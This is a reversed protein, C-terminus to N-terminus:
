AMSSLRGSRRRTGDEKEEMTKEAVDEKKAVDEAKHNQKTVKAKAQTTTKAPAKPKTKLDKATTATTTTTSKRTRKAKPTPLDEDDEEETEPKINRKKTTATSKQKKPEPKATKKKKKGSTDDDDQNASVRMGEGGDDEAEEDDEGEEGAVQGNKMKKQVRPVIASTRGGVKLHVIKDGNPLINTEGGKKGKDWRYKMLWDGPFKTSDALVAVATDCVKMMAAHIKNIQALSLTNTYQEPHQAAQYLLEDAVWNGIGSINAQNLLFAKLPVRKSHLKEHLWPITLIEKDIVPDPGNEKLPTTQRILAAPTDVLRIRALRRPDVFAVQHDQLHLIFKWFRPPWEPTKIEDQDNGKRHYPSTDDNSFKIWGTM